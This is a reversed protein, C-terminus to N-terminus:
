PWRAASTHRLWQPAVKYANDAAYWTSYIADPAWTGEGGPAGLDVRVRGWNSYSALGNTRKTAAVSVINDADYAAPYRLADPNFYDSDLDTADNGASAVFIIGHNGATRIADLLAQSFSPIGWSANIINAGEAIAYDLSEIAASTSLYGYTDICKCAMIQVRWAVGVVAVGNNGVAGIGGHSIYDAARKM